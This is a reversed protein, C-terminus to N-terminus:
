QALYCVEKIDVQGFHVTKPRQQKRVSPYQEEGLFISIDCDELGERSSSVKHSFAEGLCPLQVRIINFGLGDVGDSGVMGPIFSVQLGKTRWPHLAKDVSEHVKKGSALCLVRYMFPVHAKCIDNVCSLVREYEPKSLYPELEHPLAITLSQSWTTRPGYKGHKDTTDAEIDITNQM